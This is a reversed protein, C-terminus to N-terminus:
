KRPQANASVDRCLATCRRGGCSCSSAQAESSAANRCLLKAKKDVLWISCNNASTKARSCNCLFMLSRSRQTSSHALEGPCETLRAYGVRKREGRGEGPESRRDEGGVGRLRPSAGQGSPNRLM